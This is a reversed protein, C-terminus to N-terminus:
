LQAEAKTAKPRRAVMSKLIAGARQRRDALAAMAKSPKRPSMNVRIMMMAILIAILPVAYIMWANNPRTAASNVAAIGLLRLGIAVAFGGIVAQVRNQRTTAAQGVFAIALLVFAFPYLPNALRDHLEARFRAPAAQYVPDSKDPWILEHTFRERPRLTGGQEGRPEYRNLDVAYRDFSITEAGNQTANQTAGPAEPTRFVHGNQMLLYTKDDQRVIYGKEALYSSVAKPDRKDHMLLGLLAGDPGRDRIHVTMNPEPSAFRGPLLVQSILRTRAQQIYERLLRQSWPSAAHNVFAVGAAVVAALLLLPRVVSWTSAGGSTMVILESDGNLRSLVQLSALLVAVPAVFALLSPIALSTIKLFILLDHGQSAMNELQRLAVGIWTIATLSLLIM